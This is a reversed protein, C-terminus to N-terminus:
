LNLHLLPIDYYHPVILNKKLFFHFFLERANAFSVHLFVIVM